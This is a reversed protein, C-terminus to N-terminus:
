IHILSLPFLTWSSDWICKKSPSTASNLPCRSPFSLAQWVFFMGPSRTINRLLSKMPANVKIDDLYISAWIGLSALYYIIPKLLRTLIAAPPALGFPLATYQYFHRSGDPMNAAIDLFTPHPLYIM